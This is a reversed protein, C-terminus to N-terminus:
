FTLRGEHRVNYLANPHIRFLFTSSGWATGQIHWDRTPNPNARSPSQRPDCVVMCTDGIDHRHWRDGSWRNQCCLLLLCILDRKYGPLICVWSWWSIMTMWNMSQKSTIWHRSLATKIRKVLKSYSTDSYDIALKWFGTARKNSTAHKPVSNRSGTSSPCSRHCTMRWDQSDLTSTLMTCLTVFSLIMWQIPVDLLAHASFSM